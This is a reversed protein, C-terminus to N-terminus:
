RNTSSRKPEYFGLKMLQTCEQYYGTKFEELEEVASWYQDKLTEQESSRCGRTKDREKARSYEHKITQCLNQISDRKLLFLTHKEPFLDMLIQHSIPPQNQSM